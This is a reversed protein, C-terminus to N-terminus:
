KTLIRIKQLLNNRDSKTFYKKKYIEDYLLRLENIPIYDLIEDIAWSIKKLFIFNLFKKDIKNLKKKNNKIENIKIRAKCQAYGWDTRNLYPFLKLLQSNNLLNKKSLEGVINQYINYKKYKLLQDTESNTINEKGIIKNKWYLFISHELFNLLESESNLRELINKIQPNKIDNFFIENLERQSLKEFM